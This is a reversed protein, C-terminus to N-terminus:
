ELSCNDYISRTNLCGINVLSLADIINETIIIEFSGTLKYGGANFLGKQETKLYLHKLGSSNIKCGYINVIKGTSDTLPVTICNLLHEGVKDRFFGVPKLIEKQEKSLITKLTGDCFGVKYKKIIEADTIGKAELYGLAETNSLLKKHYYSVAHKLYEDLRLADDTYVGLTKKKLIKKSM